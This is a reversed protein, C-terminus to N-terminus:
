RGKGPLLEYFADKFPGLDEGSRYEVITGEERAVLTYGASNPTYSLGEEDMGLSELDHPYAGTEELEAELALVTVYITERLSTEVPISSEPLPNGFNIRILLALVLLLAVLLLPHVKGAESALFSERSGTDVDPPKRIRTQPRQPAREPEWVKAL